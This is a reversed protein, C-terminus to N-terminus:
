FGPAKIGRTKIQCRDQGLNYRQMTKFITCLYEILLNIKKNTRYSNKKKRRIPSIGIFFNM